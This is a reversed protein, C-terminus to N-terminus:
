VIFDVASIAIIDRWGSVSCCGDKEYGISVVTGDNRIGLTHNSGSAIQVISTWDTVDTEGFDYKENNIKTSVVTGDTKLGITHDWAACVQIIDTWADVDGQGFDYMDDIFTSIVTGDKRLGVTRWM